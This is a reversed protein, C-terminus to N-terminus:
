PRYLGSRLHALSVLAKDLCILGVAMYLGVPLIYLPWVFGLPRCFIRPWVYVMCLGVPSIYSTLCLGYLAWRAFYVLGFLPWVFGLPCFIRPWIFAMCLWNFPCHFLFGIATSFGIFGLFLVGVVRDLPWLRVVLPLLYVHDVVVNNSWCSPFTGLSAM